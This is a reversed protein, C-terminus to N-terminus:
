QPTGKLVLGLQWVAWERARSMIIGSQGRNQFEFALRIFGNEAENGLGVRLLEGPQDLLLEADPILDYRVDEPLSLAAKFFDDAPYIQQAVQPFDELAGTQLSQTEDVQTLSEKGMTVQDIVRNGADIFYVTMGDARGECFIRDTANANILWVLRVPEMFHRAASGPLANYLRKFQEKELTVWEGPRLDRILANFSEAGQASERIDNKRSLIQRVSDKGLNNARGSEWIAGEEPRLANTSALYEGIVRECWDFRFESFVFVVTFMVIAINLLSVCRRTWEGLTLPDYWNQAM